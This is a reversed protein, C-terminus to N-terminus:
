LPHLCFFRGHVFVTIVKCGEPSQPRLSVEWSPKHRASIQQRFINKKFYKIKYSLVSGAAWFYISGNTALDNNALSSIQLINSNKLTVLIGTM